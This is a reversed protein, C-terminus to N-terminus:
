QAISSASRTSRNTASDPEAPSSNRWTVSEAVKARPTPSEPRVQAEFSRTKTGSRASTLSQTRAGAARRAPTFDPTQKGITRAPWTTPVMSKKAVSVSLGECCRSV